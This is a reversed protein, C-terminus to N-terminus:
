IALFKVPLNLNVSELKGGEEDWRRGRGNCEADCCVGIPSSM